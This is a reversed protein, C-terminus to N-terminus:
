IKKDPNFSIHLLEKTMEGVETVLYLARQEISSSEFGKEKSYERVYKQLEKINMDDGM